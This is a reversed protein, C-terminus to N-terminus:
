DVKPLISKIYLLEFLHVINSYNQKSLDKLYIFLYLTIKEMGQYYSYLDLWKFRKM